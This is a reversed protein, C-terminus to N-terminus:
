VINRKTDDCDHMGLSEDTGAQPTSIALTIDQEQGRTGASLLIRPRSSIVAEAVRAQPTVLLQTFTSGKMPVDFGEVPSIGIYPAGWTRAAISADAGNGAM